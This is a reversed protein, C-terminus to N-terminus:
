SNERIFVVYEDAGPKQWMLRGCAPCEYLLGYLGNLKGINSDHIETQSSTTEHNAVELEIVREYEM